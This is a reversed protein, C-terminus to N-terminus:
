NPSSGIHLITSPAWYKQDADYYPYAVSFPSQYSGIQDAKLDLHFNREKGADLSEFYVVLYNDKLEFHDFLHNKEMELLQWSQLSLGAPIGIIAMPANVSRSLKNSVSVNLRVFEGQVPNNKSYQTKIELVGHQAAKPISPSTWNAELLFPISQAASIQEVEIENPGPKLWQKLDVQLKHLQRAQYYLTDLWVENVRV